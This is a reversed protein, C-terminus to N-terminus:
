WSGLCLKFNVRIKLDKALHERPLSFVVSQGPRLDVRTSSHPVQTKLTGLANTEYFLEGNDSVAM